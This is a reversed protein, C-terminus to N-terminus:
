MRSVLSLQVLISGMTPRTSKQVNNLTAHVTHPGYLTYTVFLHISYTTYSIVEGARKPRCRANQKKKTNIHFPTMRKYVTEKKKGKENTVKQM